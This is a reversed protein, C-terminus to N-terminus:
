IKLNEKAESIQPINKNNTIAMIEKANAQKTPQNIARIKRLLVVLIMKLIKPLISTIVIAINKLAAM